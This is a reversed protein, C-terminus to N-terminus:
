RQSRCLNLTLSIGGMCKERYLVFVYFLHSSNDFLEAVSFRVNDIDVYAIFIMTMFFDVMFSLEHLVILTNSCQNNSRSCICLVHLIDCAM